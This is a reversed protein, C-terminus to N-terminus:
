FAKTVFNIMVTDKKVPDFSYDSFIDIVKFDEMKLLDKIERVSYIRQVHRETEISSEKKFTLVSHILRNGVDYENAWEVEIDKFSYETKNNYFYKKINYTELKM